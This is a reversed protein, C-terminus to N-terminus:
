MGEMQRQLQRLNDLRRELSPHTSLLESFGGGGSSAAAPIIFFANMDSVERLDQKPVKDMIGSIKMLASMLAQHSGTIFAAGRDADFER